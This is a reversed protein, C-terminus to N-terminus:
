EIYITENLSLLVQAFDALALARANAPSTKTYSALQADIFATSASLEEADPERSLAIWYGQKVADAASKEASSALQAGLAKAWGRVHPNNIFALAQPAITTAPREGVSVLPEPSDFLTMMPILRSRKVMFYISRRPHGEDLTGPGYLKRDLKGSIALMSDRIAEAELRRPSWRWLYRNTDDVKAKAADFTSAQRYASTLLIQKHLRKLKWGHAILDSALWDLLEAHIPPTGQRGFDNETPVLGDGFHHQWVRNVIVRALLHGAGYETDTMWSALARRRYSLKSGPPPAVQWHKEGEPARMLVQLFGQTAVGHKKSCDGRHAFYFENFFDAGQTHHRIPTVGESCIMMKELKPQPAKALHEQVGKDLARWAEDQTRYWALLKAREEASRDGTAKGLAAAVTAPVSEGALSAPLPERSIAIRARGLNHQKNNQFDLTLTLRTGSKNAVPEAFEVTLAHDKGFEPDLAWASKKDDDIAHAALLSPKQEFTAVANQLKLEKAPASGDLPQATIRLDSLAINGNAARGPGGQAFSTHALAELRLATISSAESEIVLTYTDFDPNKGSALISGDDQLTLTAGGRSKVEKPEVVWWRAALAKAGHEHEWATFREPLQQGEYQTRAAVLPAHEADFKAKAQHFAEADLMVDVNSRVTTTFTAAIRYYDAQPIPDFKHDHCRACGITLGLFATGTTAAMDDIADYRTREVENATIQTPFVGAGLFGTAKLALPNQPELEDGALQWKVFTDYPLDSNFAEIVFDRYHYAYPRDYDQEFGHSEAFRAVDLWHRAWREGFHPSALLRDILKEYADPSEDSLFAQAEEPSPPLGILGLQARRLLTRKDAPASPSLQKERLKALLFRDIDTKAWADDIQPPAHKGLPQLSWHERAAADVQKRTWATPDDNKEVLPKDYAAGLEIWERISAIEADSLKEGDEPMRPEDAHTLTKLLFSRAAEGPVVVEESYVGGHLLAERTTLDFESETKEGGHCQVCKGVLIGRVQSAFLKESALMKEAHRPDVTKAPEAAALLTVGMLGAIVLVCIRLLM